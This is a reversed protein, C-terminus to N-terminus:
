KMIHRDQPPSLVAAVRGVISSDTVLMFPSNGSQMEPTVPGDDFTVRINPRWLCVNGPPVTVTSNDAMSLRGLPMARKAIPTGNVSLAGGHVVLTDGPLGLVREVMLGRVWVQHDGDGYDSRDLNAAVVEGRRVRPNSRVVMTDGRHLAPELGDTGVLYLTGALNMAVISTLAVIAV